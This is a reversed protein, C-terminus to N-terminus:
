HEDYHTVGDEHVHYTTEPINDYHTVGDAHTHYAADSNANDGTKALVTAVILLIAIVILVPIMIKKM